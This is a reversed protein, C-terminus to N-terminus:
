WRLGSSPVLKWSDRNVFTYMIFYIVISCMRKGPSIEMGVEKKRDWLEWYICWRQKNGSHEYGFFLTCHFFFFPQNTSGMVMAVSFRQVLSEVLWFTNSPSPFSPLSKKLKNKMCSKYLKISFNGILFNSVLFLEGPSFVLLRSFIYYSYLTYFSHQYLLAPWTCICLRVKSLTEGNLMM